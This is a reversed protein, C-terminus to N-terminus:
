VWMIIVPKLDHSQAHAACEANIIIFTRVNCLMNVVENGFINLALFFVTAGGLVQPSYLTAEM